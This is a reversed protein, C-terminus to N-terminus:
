RIGRLAPSKRKPPLISWMGRTREKFQRDGKRVWVRIELQHDIGLILEEILKEKHTTGESLTYPPMRLQNKKELKGKAEDIEMTVTLKKLKLQIEFGKGKETKFKTKFKSRMILNMM